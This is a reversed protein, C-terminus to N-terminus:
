CYFSKIVHLNTRIIQISESRNKALYTKLYQLHRQAYERLFISGCGIWSFGTHLDIDRDFYTWVLNTYFTYPDTVSHLVHPDSRFDAILSNLYFSADWDDDVYFCAITNAEACARYKAEDKLNEKSNIIRILDLSYNQKLISHKELNIAPNNNWIIIQKFYNSNLLYDVAKRTNKTRKWHLLIATLDYKQVLAIEHQKSQIFEFHSFGINIENNHSVRM